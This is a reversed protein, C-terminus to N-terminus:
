SQLVCATVQYSYAMCNWFSGQSLKVGAETKEETKNLMQLKM